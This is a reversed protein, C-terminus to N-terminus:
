VGWVRYDGGPVRTAGWVRYDGRPVERSGGFGTIREQSGQLGGLGQLGRRPVRYGVIIGTVGTIGEQSLGMKGVVRRVGYNGGKLTRESM